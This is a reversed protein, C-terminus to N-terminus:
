TLCMRINNKWQHRPIPLSKKGESKRVLVRYINRKARMTGCERDMGSDKIQHGSCRALFNGWWFETFIETRGWLAVHGTWEVTRLKIVRVDPWFCVELLEENHRNTMNGNIKEKKTELIVRLLKYTSWCQWGAYSGWHSLVLEVVLCFLLCIITRYIESKINWSVLRFM